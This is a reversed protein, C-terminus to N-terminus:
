ITFYLSACFVRLIEKYSKEHIGTDSPTLVPHFTSALINSRCVMVLETDGTRVTAVTAGHTIALAMTAEQAGPKARVRGASKVPASGMGAYEGPAVPCRAM